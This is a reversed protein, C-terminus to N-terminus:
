ETQRDYLRRLREIDGDRKSENKYDSYRDQVTEGKKMTEKVRESNRDEIDRQM